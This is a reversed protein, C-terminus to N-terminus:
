LKTSAAAKFASSLWLAPDGWLCVLHMMEPSFGKTETKTEWTEHQQAGHRTPLYCVWCLERHRIFSLTLWFSTVARSVLLCEALNRM